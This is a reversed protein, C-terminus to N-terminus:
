VQAARRQAYAIVNEAHASTHRESFCEQYRVLADELQPGPGRDALLVVIAEWTEIRPDPLALLEDLYRGPELLRLARRAYAHVRRPLQARIADVDAQLVQGPRDPDVRLSWLETLDDPMGHDDILGPGTAQELPAIPVGLETNRRNCFEWWATPTASLNLGFKLEQQGGTWTRLTRTRGVSAVGGPVVRTWRAESGDFGYPQLLKGAERTLRRLAADPGVM